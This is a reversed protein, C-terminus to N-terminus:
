KTIDLNFNRSDAEVSANKTAAESKIGCMNLFQKIFMIFLNKQTCKKYNFETCIFVMQM